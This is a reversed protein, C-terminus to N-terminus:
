NMRMLKTERFSNVLGIWYEATLKEFTYNRLQSLRQYETELLEPTVQEYSPTWLVPLGEFVRFWGDTRNYHEIIPISGFMLAEWHRYCDWGFGSPSFVFKSQSLEQWYNSFASRNYTNHLTGRFNREITRIQEMREDRPKANLMALQTKPVVTRPIHKANMLGLPISHVKWHDIAQFQSTFVALTNDHDLYDMVQQLTCGNGITKSVNGYDVTRNPVYESLAGWNEHLKVFLVHRKTQKTKGFHGVADCLRPEHILDMDPDKWVDIARRKQKTKGATSGLEPFHKLLAAFHQRPRWLIPSKTGNAFLESRFPDIGDDDDDVKTHQDLVSVGMEINDTQSNDNYGPRFGLQRSRGTGILHDDCHILIRHHVASIVITALVITWLHGVAKSARRYHSSEPM